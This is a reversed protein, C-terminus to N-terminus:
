EGKAKAVLRSDKMSSPYMKYSDCLYHTKDGKGCYMDSNTFRKLSTANDFGVREREVLEETTHERVLEGKGNYVRVPHIM